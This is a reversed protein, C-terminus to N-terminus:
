NGTRKLSSDWKISINFPNTKILKLKHNEKDYIMDTYEQIAKATTREYIGDGWRTAKQIEYRNMEGGKSKLIVRLGNVRKRILEIGIPHDEKEAERLMQNKYSTRTHTPFLTM